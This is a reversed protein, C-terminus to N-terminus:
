SGEARAIIALGTLGGIVLISAVILLWTALGRNNRALFYAIGVLGGLMLETMPIIRLGDASGEFVSLGSLVGFFIALLAVHARFANINREQLDAFVGRIYRVMEAREEPSMSEYRKRWSWRRMKAM